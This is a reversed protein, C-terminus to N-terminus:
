KKEPGPGVGDVTEPLATARFRVLTTGEDRSQIELAVEAGEPTEEVRVRTPHAVVHTLTEDPADGTLIEIPSSGAKTEAVIGKLPREDAEVQAGLDGFLEVTVLWGEHRRTFEDFFGKWEGPPIERTVMETETVNSTM